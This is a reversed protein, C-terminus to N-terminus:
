TSQAETQVQPCVERFNCRRCWRRETTCPFSDESATNGIPDDLRARMEAASDLIFQRTEALLDPTVPQEQVKPADVLYVAAVRVAEPPVHWREIAYLAYCGLQIRLEDPREAGTKWDLIRTAGQPDTFAFDVAAWVKLGDVAFADLRDVPRWNVYPTALISELVASNAFTALATYVRERLRDTVERPLSKGNGYYLEFLNTKKPSREWERNVSEVWGRRLKSRARSQLEEVTIARRDLAYRRLAEAITEHVISGAWMDLTQLNKLIYLKRCMPDASEDWGGWSGYYTYYYARECMRFLRDRSVSWSFENVLQAM